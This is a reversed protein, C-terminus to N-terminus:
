SSHPINVDYCLCCDYTLLERQFVHFELRTIKLRMRESNKLLYLFILIEGEAILFTM